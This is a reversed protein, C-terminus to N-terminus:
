SKVRSLTPTFFKCSIFISHFHMMTFTCCAFMQTPPHILLSALCSHQYDLIRQRKQNKGFAKALSDLRVVEPRWVVMLPHYRNLFIRCGQPTTGASSASERSCSVDILFVFHTGISTCLFSSWSLKFSDSCVDRRQLAISKSEVFSSLEPVSAFTLAPLTIGQPKLGASYSWECFCRM